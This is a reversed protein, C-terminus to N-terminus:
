KKKQVIYTDVVKSQIVLRLGILENDDNTLYSKIPRPSGGRAIKIVEGLPTLNSNQDDIVRSLLSAKLKQVETEKAEVM